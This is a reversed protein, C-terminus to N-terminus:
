MLRLEGAVGWFFMAMAPEGRRRWPALAASVSTEGAPQPSGKLGPHHSGTM